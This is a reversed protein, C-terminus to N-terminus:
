EESGPEGTKGGLARVIQGREIDIDYLDAEAKRIADNMKRETETAKSVAEDRKQRLPESKKLIAERQKNLEHFRKRMADPKMMKSM